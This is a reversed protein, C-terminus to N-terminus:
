RMREDDMLQQTGRMRQAEHGAGAAGQSAIHAQRGTACDQGAPDKPCVTAYRFAMSVCAVCAM